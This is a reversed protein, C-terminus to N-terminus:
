PCRKGYVTIHGGLSTMYRVLEAPPGTNLIPEQTIIRIRTGDARAHILPYLPLEHPEIDSKIKTMIRRSYVLDGAFKGDEVVFFETVGHVYTASLDPLRVIALSGATASWLGNLLYLLKGDPSLQAKSFWCFSGERGGFSLARSFLVTESNSAPDYHVARNRNEPRSCDIDSWDYPRGRLLLIWGNKTISPSFGAGLSRQGGAKDGYIVLGDREFVRQALAPVALAVLAAAMGRLSAPM